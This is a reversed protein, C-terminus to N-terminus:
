IQACWQARALIETDESFCLNRGQGIKLAIYDYKPHQKNTSLCSCNEWLLLQGASEEWDMLFSDAAQYFPVLPASTLAQGLEVQEYHIGGVLEANQGGFYCFHTLFVRMPNHHSDATHAGFLGSVRRARPNSNYLRVRVGIYQAAFTPTGRWCWWSFEISILCSSLCERYKTQMQPWGWRFVSFRPQCRLKLTRISSYM